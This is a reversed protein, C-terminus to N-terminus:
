KSSAELDGKRKSPLKTQLKRGKRTGRKYADEDIADPGKPLKPAGRLAKAVRKAAQKSREDLLALASSSAGKEAQAKAERIAERLGYVVSVRYDRGYKPSRGECAKEAAQDVTLALWTYTERVLELDEAKGYLHPVFGGKTKEYHHACGHLECLVELLYSRWHQFRAMAPLSDDEAIGSPDGTEVLLQAEAIRHESLLRVAQAAAAEAEHPNSNHSALNRLKKIRDIIASQDAM